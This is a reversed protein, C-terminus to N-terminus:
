KLVRVDAGQNILYDMVEKAGMFAAVNLLEDNNVRLDAGNRHLLKVIDLDNFLVALKLPIENDFHIDAGFNILFSLAELNHSNVARIVLEKVEKSKLTRMNKKTQNNKKKVNPM